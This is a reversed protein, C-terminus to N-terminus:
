YNKLFFLYTYKTAVLISIKLFLWLAYQPQIDALNPIHRTCTYVVQKYNNAVLILNIAEAIISFM